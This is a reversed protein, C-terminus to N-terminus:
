FQMKINKMLLNGGQCEISAPKADAGASSSKKAEFQATYTQESRDIKEDTMTQGTKKGFDIAKELCAAFSWLSMKMSGASFSFGANATQTAALNFTLSLSLTLFLGAFFTTLARM